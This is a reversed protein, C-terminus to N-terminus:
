RGKRHLAGMCDGVLLHSRHRCLRMSDLLLVLRLLHLLLHVQLLLYLLRLLVRLLLSLLLCLL